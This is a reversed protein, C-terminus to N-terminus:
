NVRTIGANELMTGKEDFDLKQGIQLSRQLALAINLSTVCVQLPIPMPQDDLVANVFAITETVFSTIYRDYWGPLSSVHIGSADAVEVRNLRSVLNVSIKGATGFIETQNDYGAAATRSNYFYAIQGGWFQCIGVANDADGTAELETFHATMGFACVSKPKVDDGFFSLALDIDHIISDFFIGGSAKLYNHMFDSDDLKELGQSRIAVPRGIAGARIKQMADQYNEDFRRTFGVMVKAHPSAEAKAVLDNLKPRNTRLIYRSIHL